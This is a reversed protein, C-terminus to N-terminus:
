SQSPQHFRDNVPEASDIDQDVVRANGPVHHQQPHLLLLPVMDHAHVQLARKVAVLAAM